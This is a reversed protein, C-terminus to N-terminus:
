LTNCLSDSEHLACLRLRTIIDVRLCVISERATNKSKGCADMKSLIDAVPHIVQPSIAISNLHKIKGGGRFPM